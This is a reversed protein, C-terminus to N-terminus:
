TSSKMGGTHALSGRLGARFLSVRRARLSCTPTLWSYCDTAAPTAIHITTALPNEVGRTSVRFHVLSVQGVISLERRNNSVLVALPVLYMALVTSVIARVTSPLPNDASKPKAIVHVLRM